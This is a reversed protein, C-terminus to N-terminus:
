RISSALNALNIGYSKNSKLKMPQVVNQPATGNALASLSVIDKNNARNGLVQNTASKAIVRLPTM